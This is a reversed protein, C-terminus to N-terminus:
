LVNWYFRQNPGKRFDMVDETHTSSLLGHAEAPHVFVVRIEEVTTFRANTAISEEVAAVVAHAVRERAAHDARALERDSISVNVRAPSALVEISGMPYDTSSAIASQLQDEAATWGRDPVGPVGCAGAVVCLIGWILLRRLSAPV